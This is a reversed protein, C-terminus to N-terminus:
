EKITYGAGRVTHIIKQDHDGDIKKRLNSIHVDVINSLSSDEVDWLQTSIEERTLVQPRQRMLLCLLDFETPTLLISKGKRKVERSGTDVVLNGIVLKELLHGQSRRTLAGIRAILEEFAFPKTLFDDAGSDFARVKDEIADRATLMLIPISLGGVRLDRCVEFGDKHPLMLDLVVLAYWADKKLLTQIASEGDYFLSVEYGESELGEKLTAALKQEDEVIAINM